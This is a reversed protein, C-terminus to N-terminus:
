RREPTTVEATVRKALLDDLRNSRAARQKIARVIREMGFRRTLLDFQRDITRWLRSEGGPRYSAEFRGRIEQVEGDRVVLQGDPLLEWWEAAAVLCRAGDDSVFSARCWSQNEIIRDKAEPPLMDIYRGLM